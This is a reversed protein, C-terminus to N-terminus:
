RRLYEQEKCIRDLEATKLVAFGRIYTPEEEHM